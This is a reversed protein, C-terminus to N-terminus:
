ATAHCRCRSRFEASVAGELPWGTAAHEMCDKQGLGSGQLGPGRIGAPVLAQVPLEDEGSSLSLFVATLEGSQTASRRACGPGPAASVLVWIGVRFFLLELFRAIM